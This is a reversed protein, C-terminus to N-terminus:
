KVLVSGEPVLTNTLVDTIQDVTKSISPSSLHNWIGCTIKDKEESVTNKNSQVVTDYLM